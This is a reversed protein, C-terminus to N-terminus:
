IEDMRKELLAQMEEDSLDQIDDATVQTSRSGQGASARPSAQEVGDVSLQTELYNAVADVTPHDFVLTASLVNELGLGVGLLNRLEVAMLSDIGLDM